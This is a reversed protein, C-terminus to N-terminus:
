GPCNHVKNSRHPPVILKVKVTIRFKNVANTVVDHPQHAPLHLQGFHVDCGKILDCGPERLQPITDHAPPMLGKGMKFQSVILTVKHQEMKCACVKIPVLLQRQVYQNDAFVTQPRGLNQGLPEPHCHRLHLFDRGHANRPDVRRCQIVVRYNKRRDPQRGERPVVHYDVREEKIILHGPNLM